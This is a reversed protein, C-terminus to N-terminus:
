TFECYVADPVGSKALCLFLSIGTLMQEKGNTFCLYKRQGMLNVGYIVPKLGAGWIHHLFNNRIREKFELTILTAPWEWEKAM